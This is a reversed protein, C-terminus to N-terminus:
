PEGSGADRRMIRIQRAPSKPTIGDVAALASAFGGAKAQRAPAPCGGGAARWALATSLRGETVDGLEHTFDDAVACGLVNADTGTATPSPSFGDSYSGFNKQNVGQFQISFYTTGCNDEPYFGYPKGCTTSGIQVVEVDAGRLGNIISESASCTGPGTLVFVRGLNLTPLAQGQVVTFGQGVSHFPVPDLPAGTVPNTTPHKSNFQTREFAKSATRAPGAIMYAMEAAIDLFGGGNYRLDLVLDSVGQDRLFTVGDVLKQESTAIHDNFLIYGVQGGTGPLVNAAPVPDTTIIASQLTIDRTSGDLARVTFNHTEGAGAPFFAANLTDVNAQTGGNIVDVGDAVIIEEGRSLPPASVGPERYAVVVQRPPSARILAWQVGYGASEGSAALAEWEATTLTFHFNDKPRGSATTANTKLVDFYDLASTFNAPNQDTVEGFWLYLDNTWSRLFNNEALLSGARDPYARGTVPSVGTRPNACQAAFSAYPQFQGPTYTIGGPNGTVGGGGGGGCGGIMVVSALM